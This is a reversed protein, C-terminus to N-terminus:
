PASQLCSAASSVIRHTGREGVYIYSNNYLERAGNNYVDRLYISATVVSGVAPLTPGTISAYSFHAEPIGPMVNVVLPSGMVTLGAAITPPTVVFSYKGAQLFFLPLQSYLLQQMCNM